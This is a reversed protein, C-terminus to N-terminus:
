VRQVPAGFSTTRANHRHTPRRCGRVPEGVFTFQGRITADVVPARRSTRSVSRLAAALLFFSRVFISNTVQHDATMQEVVSSDTWRAGPFKLEVYFCNYKLLASNPGGIGGVLHQLNILPKRV